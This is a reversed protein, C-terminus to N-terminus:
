RMTVLEEASTPHIAITEDLDRKRAGMKLAVAFGQTIEDSGMGIMHIGLVKEEEGYCVLKMGTPEKEDQPMMSYYLATFSSKYVKISEEGYKQKAEKETMGVTGCPPHSFVVTAINEYSIKDDKVEGYLRNSLRRGAAIAVPTLLGKGQVDGIAFIHDVSTKQYEDVIVDGKGDLKVGARDCRLIDTLSRRGIAFLVCDVELKEGEQTELLKPFPKTLDHPGAQKTTIRSVNSAKHIIIGTHEMHQSLTDQIISDFNRLAKEHRIILHTESGLNHFIGALEVAIYGAGVVAVRKPLDELAFFGDSDIGLEAGEIEPLVPRGGVAIVIRNATLRKQAGIVKTDSEEAQSHVHDSQVGESIELTHSDLFSAHGTIYDVKDNKLNKEYIGNLRHIYADRKKKLELWNPQPLQSDVPALGYHSAAKMKERIDAAHWMVKKPVCGVNVCTGGLVATREIIAVKAGHQSARRACGLGGSGGGIVLLDYDYSHRPLEVPAM